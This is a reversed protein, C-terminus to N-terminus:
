SYSICIEYEYHVFAVDNFLSSVFFKKLSAAEICFKVGALKFAVEHLSYLWSFSLITVDVFM